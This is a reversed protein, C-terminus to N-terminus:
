LGKINLIRKGVLHLHKLIKEKQIMRESLHIKYLLVNRFNEIKGNNLCVASTAKLSNHDGVRSVNDKDDIMKTKLQM